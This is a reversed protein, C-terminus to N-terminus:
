ILIYLYIYCYDQFLRISICIEVASGKLQNDFFISVKNEIWSNLIQLKQWKLNFNCSEIIAAVNEISDRSLEIKRLWGLVEQAMTAFRDEQVRFLALSRTDRYIVPGNTFHYFEYHM